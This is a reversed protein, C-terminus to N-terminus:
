FIFDEAVPHCLRNECSNSVRGTIRLPRRPIYLWSNRRSLGSVPGIPQLLREPDRAPGLELAGDLAGRPTRPCEGAASGPDNCM